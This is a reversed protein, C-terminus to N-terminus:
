GVSLLGISQDAGMLYLLFRLAEGQEGELKPNQAVILRAEDQATAMLETDYELDAIRFKPLGSQQVGLVDGAGRLKLDVESIKFGDNTERIAELRKQATKGLPPAYLLICSSQDHGRGVRGRLQHLQSLGFREAQEIVIITANPVDVGVEIVTTAVLVKTKASVFDAMAASKEAASLRGHVLGINQPGLAAGLARHREDTAALDMVESESVLPCVWYIQKGSDIAAKLRQVVQDMRTNSVMVTEIDKRGAPKEDLISIDMDGHNALALSRPIPTATMILIDVARGKAGLDLRQKVGFRHQEDIVALRLNNFEIDKQFVAHTGILIHIAGSRLADLKRKREAGKDAGTLIELVVQAQEALPKLGEFHQQALIGTPAMLVGQGGAEVAALLAMLAVLTKGSGVDGQLLRNMRIPAAMDSGIEGVARKQASTMTFPLATEVRHTLVGTPVSPQGPKKRASQRAIALCLQHSLMEDYALRARHKSNLAMDQRSKPNHALDLARRWSMFGMKDAVAPTIWETADPTVNLCHAAAKSMLKNSIGASLPYVPEFEPIEALQSPVVIHDPHVMQPMTDFMEIKGSIIRRQGIPLNKEIWDKRPHFFVLQFSQATDKVMVRYPRGKTSNPSHSLIEVEVTVVDPFNVGLITDRPTRVILSHPLTFLLDRPNEIGMKNLHAASKPGVGGLSTLASFLPFLKEPRNSM